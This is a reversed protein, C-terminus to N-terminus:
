KRFYELLKVNHDICILVMPPVLSVSTFSNVTLGHPEGEQDMVAAITIGTAFKSCARRFLHSDIMPATGQCHPLGLGIMFNVSSAFNILSSMMLSTTLLVPIVLVFASIATSVTKSLM